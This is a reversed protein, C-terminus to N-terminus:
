NSEKASDLEEAAIIHNQAPYLVLVRLVMSAIIGVLTSSYAILKGSSPSYTIVLFSSVTGFLGIYLPLDMFTGANQLKKLKIAASSLSSDIKKIVRFGIYFCCCQLALISSCIVMAIRGALQVRDALTETAGQDASGLVATSNEGTFLTRFYDNNEYAAYMGGLVACVILAPVIINFFIKAFTKMNTNRRKDQTIYGALSPIELQQLFFFAFFCFLAGTNLDSLICTGYQPLHFLKNGDPDTRDQRWDAPVTPM